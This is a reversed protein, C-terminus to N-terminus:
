LRLTVRGQMARKNEFVRIPEHQPGESDHSVGWRENSVYPKAGLHVLPFERTAFYPWGSAFLWKSHSWDESVTYAKPYGDISWVIMDDIGFGPWRSEAWTFRKLDMIMVGTNIYLAGAQQPDVGYLSCLDERTIREVPLHDLEWMCVRRLGFSNDPSLQLATSTHGHPSKIPVVSSMCAAKNESLRQIMLEIWSRKPDAPHFIGIDSHLLCFYDAGALYAEIFMSNFNRALLSLGTIQYRLNFNPSYAAFVSHATQASIEAGLCPIGLYVDVM